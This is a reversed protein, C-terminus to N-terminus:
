VVSRLSWDHCCRSYSALVHPLIHVHPCLRLQTNQTEGEFYIKSNIVYINLEWIKNLLLLVVVNEFALHEFYASFAPPAQLVPISRIRLPGIQPLSFPTHFPSPHLSSLLSVPLCHFSPPFHEQFKKFFIAKHALLFRGGFLDLTGHQSCKWPRISSDQRSLSLCPPKSSTHIFRRFHYLANLLQTICNANPSSQTSTWAAILGQRAPATQRRRAPTTAATPSWRGPCPYTSQATVTTTWHEATAYSTTTARCTTTTTTTINNNSSFSVHFLRRPWHVLQRHYRCWV